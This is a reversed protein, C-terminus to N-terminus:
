WELPNALRKLAVTAMYSFVGLAGLWATVRIMKTPGRRLAINGLIIYLLLGFFKATLWGDTLPYQHLHYALTIGSALLVTDILHPAIKVWRKQLRPRNQMMWLGRLFFSTFTLIVCFIHISKVTITMPNEM